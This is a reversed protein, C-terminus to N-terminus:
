DTGSCDSLKYAAIKNGKEPFYSFRGGTAMFLVYQCGKYLYTMPPASGSAPLRDAWLETGNAIDYARAFRDPTGTAFVVGSSTTLVGGFNRAGMTKRDTVDTEFGFPVRWLIKRKEIDVANIYGWPPKTVPQNRSDTLMEWNTRLTWKKPDLRRNVEDLEKAAQSLTAGSINSLADSVERTDL